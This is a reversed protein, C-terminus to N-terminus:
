GPKGVARVIGAALTNSVSNSPELFCQFLDVGSQIGFLTEQDLVFRELGREIVSINGVPSHGEQQCARGTWLSVHQHVGTMVILGLINLLDDGPQEMVPHDSAEMEVVASVGIVIQRKPRDIGVLDEADEVLNVGVGPFGACEGIHCVHDVLTVIQFALHFGHDLRHARCLFKVGLGGDHVM